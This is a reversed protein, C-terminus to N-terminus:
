GRIEHLDKLIEEYTRRPINLARAKDIEKKIESWKGKGSDPISGDCFEIIIEEGKKLSPSKVKLLGEASVEATLYM